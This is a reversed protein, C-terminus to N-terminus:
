PRAAACPILIKDGSEEAEETFSAQHRLKGTDPALDQGRKADLFTHFTVPKYRHWSHVLLPVSQGVAAPQKRGFHCPHDEKGVPIPHDQQVGESLFRALRWLLLKLQSASALRLPM